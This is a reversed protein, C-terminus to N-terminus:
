VTYFWYVARTRRKLEEVEDFIITEGKEDKGDVIKNKESDNKV